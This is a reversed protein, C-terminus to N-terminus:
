LDLLTLCLSLRTISFIIPYIDLSIVICLLYSVKFLFIRTPKYSKYLFATLQISHSPFLHYIFSLRRHLCQFHIYLVLSTSTPKLINNDLLGLVQFFDIM